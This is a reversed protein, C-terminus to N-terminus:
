LAQLLTKDWRLDAKDAPTLGKRNIQVIPLNTKHAKPDVLPQLDRCWENALELELTLLKLWKLAPTKVPVVASKPIMSTWTQPM